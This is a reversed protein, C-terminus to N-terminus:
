ALSQIVVTTGELVIIRQPIISKEKLFYYIIPEYSLKIATLSYFIKHLM